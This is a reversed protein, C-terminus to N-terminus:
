YGEASSLRRKELALYVLWANASGIYYQLGVNKGEVADIRSSINWPDLGKITAWEREAIELGERVLGRLIMHAAVAFNVRPWCSRLQPTEEDVRGDPTVSNPVCFKSAKMGLEYISKLARRIKEEDAVPPLNLFDCWFQGLLQSSLCNENGRGGQAWMIFYRGNWLEDFARRGRELCERYKGEAPRKLIESAKIYATLACLFLSAIYSSRGYMHTGDYSNDYGGKSDPICDGDEDLSILWDIARKINEINRALISTDGTFYYDRYIMLVWTSALDKWPQVYSAGYIPSDLTEEGLDHPVEGGRLFVGFLEDMKVVADPFLRLLAFSLGDWTLSGITNMLPAIFPSEYFALRGDKTLWSTASLVYLGNLAAERLWGGAEIPIRPELRAELAYEAVDIASQFWNEYYHGYPYNYPKGRAYWTLAVLAEGEVDLWVIGSIEERAYPEIYYRSPDEIEGLRRFISVDETMGRESPVWYPHGAYTRCGLCGLFIEGRAPDDQHAKLNTMLVGSLRGLRVSFNARGWRRGVINPFSIAVPGRGKLKFYILPLSSNKLDGAIIPSYVEVEKIPADFIYRTRPWEADVDVPAARKYNPPSEVWRGPEGQLFVPEESLLVIHFGRIARLPSSWNNFLAAREITLDPYFAIYGAGIGGLPIAQDARPRM